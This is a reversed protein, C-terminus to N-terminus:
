VFRARLFPQQDLPGCVFILRCFVPKGRQGSVDGEVLQNVRGLQSPANLAVIALKFLFNAEPMVFAATPAAEVM